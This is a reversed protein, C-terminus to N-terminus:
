MCGVKPNSVLAIALGMSEINPFFCCGCVILLLLLLPLVLLLILLVVPTKSGVRAVAAGLGNDTAEAGVV